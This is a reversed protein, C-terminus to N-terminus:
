TLCQVTNSNRLMDENAVTYVLSASALFFFDELSLVFCVTSCFSVIKRVYNKALHSNGLM